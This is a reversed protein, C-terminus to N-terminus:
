GSCASGSCLRNVSLVCCRGRGRRDPTPALCGCSCGTGDATGFIDEIELRVEPRAASCSALSISLGQAAKATTVHGRSITDSCDPGAARRCARWATTARRSWLDFRLWAMMPWSSLGRTARVGALPTRSDGGAIQGRIRAAESRVSTDAGTAPLEDSRSLQTMGSSPCWHRSRRAPAPWPKTRGARESQEASLIIKAPEFRDGPSVVGWRGCPM